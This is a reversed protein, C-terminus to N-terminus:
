GAAGTANALAGSKGAEAGCVSQRADHPLASAVFVGDAVGGVLLAVTAL